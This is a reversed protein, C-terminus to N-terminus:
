PTKQGNKLVFAQGVKPGATGKKVLKITIGEVRLSNGESGARAGNKAWGLWGYKQIQLRYYVDYQKAIEGTLVIKIGELRFSKGTTGGIQNNSVPAQWGYHQVQTTYSIGGSVPLNSLNIRLAELRLSKGATGSLAGDKVYSQWGQNQVYSQYNVSPVKAPTPKSPSQVQATASSGVRITTKHDSVYGEIEMKIKQGASLAIGSPINVQWTTKGFGTYTELVHGNPLTIKLSSSSPASGTLTKAGPQITNVTPATRYIKTVDMKEDSLPDTYPIITSLHITSNNLKKTLSLSWKGSKDTTLRKFQSHEKGNAESQFVSISIQTNPKGTGSLSSDGNKFTNLNPAPVLEKIVAHLVQSGNADKHEVKIKKHAPLKIGKPVNITYYGYKDVTTKVVQGTPLYATVSAGINGSGSFQTTESTITNVNFSQAANVSIQTSQFSFPIYLLCIGILAVILKKLKM